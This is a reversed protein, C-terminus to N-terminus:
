PSYGVLSRQGPIRWALVISHIAMEKELSRGSGSTSGMDRANVPLNKVALAMPYASESCQGCGQKFPIKLWLKNFFFNFILSNLKELIMCVAFPLAQVRLRYEKKWRPYVMIFFFVFIFSHRYTYLQTVKSYKATNITM